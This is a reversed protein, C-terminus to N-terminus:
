VGRRVSDAAFRVSQVIRLLLGVRPASAAAGFRLGAWEVRVSSRGPPREIIAVAAPQGSMIHTKASDVLPLYPDEEASSPPRPVFPGAGWVLTDSGAAWSDSRTAHEDRLAVRRWDSPICFSFGVERVLRWAELGSQPCVPLALAAATPGPGIGFATQVLQCAPLAALLLIGLVFRM